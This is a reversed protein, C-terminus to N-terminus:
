KSCIIVWGDNDSTNNRFMFIFVFAGDQFSLGVLIATGFIPSAGQAVSIIRTVVISPTVCFARQALREWLYEIAGFVRNLCTSKKQKMM